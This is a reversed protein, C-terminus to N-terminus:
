SPQTTELRHRFRRNAGILFALSFIAIASEYIRNGMRQSVSESIEQWKNTNFFAALGHKAAKFDAIRAPESSRIWIANKDVYAMATNIEEILKKREQSVESILKVYSQYDDLLQDLYDRKTTVFEKAKIALPSDMDDGTIIEHVKAVPDALEDREEQLGVNSLSVKRLENQLQRIQIHSEGTTMLNRRLDVLLMGNTATLGGAEIKKEIETRRKVINEYQQTISEYTTKLQQVKGVITEQELILEANRAALPEISWHASAAKQNAERLDAAVEQDRIKQTAREWSAVELELRKVTRLNVDRQIPDFKAGAEQRAEESDLKKLEADLALLELEQALHSIQSDLDEALNGAITERLKQQKEVAASRDIPIQVVRESRFQIAAEIQELMKKEHALDDRKKKLEISLTSSDTTADFTPQDPEIQEELQDKSVVEENEIAVVEHDYRKQQAELEISKQMSESALSLMQLRASRVAESIQDDSKIAEQHIQIEQSLMKLSKVPFNAAFALEAAETEILEEATNSEQLYGVPRFYRDHNIARAQRAPQEAPSQNSKWTEAPLLDGTLWNEALRYHQHDAKWHHEFRAPELPLRLRPAEEEANMPVAYTGIITLAIVVSRCYM